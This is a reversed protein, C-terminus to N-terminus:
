QHWTCKGHHLNVIFSQILKYHIFHLHYQRHFLAWKGNLFIIEKIGNKQTSGNELLPLHNMQVVSKKSKRKSVVDKIVYGCCMAYTILFFVLFLIVFILVTNLNLILHILMRCESSDPNYNYCSDPIIELKQTLNRFKEDIQRSAERGFKPGFLGGFVSDVSCDDQANKILCGSFRAFICCM